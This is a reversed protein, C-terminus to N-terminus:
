QKDYVEVAERAIGKADTLKNSLTLIKGDTSITRTGTGIIKGQKKLTFTVNRADGPKVLLTDFSSSGTFPYDKGDYSYTSQQSIPSGDAAVGEVKLTIGQADQTYTRTVSKPAPGPSYKSKAVNLTWTGVSPDKADAALAASGGGLAVVIGVLFGCLNTKM